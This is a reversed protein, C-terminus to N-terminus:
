RFKMVWLVFCCFVSFLYRRRGLSHLFEVGWRLLAFPIPFSHPSCRNIEAGGDMFLRGARRLRSVTLLLNHLDASLSPSQRYRHFTLIFRPWLCSRLAALLRARREGRKADKAAEIDDGLNVADGRPARVHAHAHRYRDGQDVADARVTSSRMQM